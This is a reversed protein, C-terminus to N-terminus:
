DDHLRNGKIYFSVLVYTLFARIINKRADFDFVLVKGITHLFPEKDRNYM